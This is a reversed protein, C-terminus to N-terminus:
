ATYTFTSTTTSGTTYTLVTMGPASPPTSVTSGPASVLPYQDSPVAFIVTGSGGGGGPMPAGGAGGGGGGTGPTGSIAPILPGNPAQRGGCGGGGSGGAGGPCARRAGMGGGGGYALGTFPWTYGAGGPSVCTSAGVAGAGGGGGGSTTGGANGGPFGRNTLGVIGPNQTPQLGTGATSAGGGGGSGGPSAAVGGAPPTSGGGGGGLATITSFATASITSNSGNTGVTACASIGAAGGGVVISYVNGGTTDFSGNAIGGAGGGGYRGGSGGGAVVLYNLTYTPAVVAFRVTSTTSAQNNQSDKVSFVVNAGSQLVTSTGSVLGTNSNLTIGTPLTGSSVSYVYPAFGASVSAFPYFSTITSNQLSSVATTTGATALVPLLSVGFNVTATNASQTGYLDRVAFVAPALNQQTTPIGSVLGTSSNVTLGPPIVGSSVYYTYPLYGGTVSSFPNFSSLTQNQLAAVTTTAGVTSTLPAVSDMSLNGSINWSGTMSVPM